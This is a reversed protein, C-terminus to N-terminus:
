STTKRETVNIFKIFNDMTERNKACSFDCLNFKQFIGYSNRTMWFQREKNLGVYRDICIYHNLKRRQWCVLTIWGTNMQESIKNCKLIWGLSVWLRGSVRTWSQLFFTNERRLLEGPAEILSAIRLKNSTVFRYFAPVLRDLPPVQRDHFVSKETHWLDLGAALKMWRESTVAGCVMELCVLWM